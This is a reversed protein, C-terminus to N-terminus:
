DINYKTKILLDDLLEKAKLRYPIKSLMNKVIFDHIKETENHKIGKYSLNTHDFEIVVPNIGVQYRNIMKWFLVGLLYIDYKKALYLYAINNNNDIDNNEDKILKEIKELLQKKYIDELPSIKPSCIQNHIKKDKESLYNGCSYQFDTFIISIKQNDEIKILINEFDFNQHVVEKKHIYTLAYLIQTIIKIIVDLYKDPNLDKIKEFYEGLSEEQNFQHVMIINDQTIGYDLCQRVYKRSSQFQSLYNLFAIQSFSDNDLKNVPRIQIVFKKSNNNVDNALYNRNNDKTGLYKEIMYKKKLSNYIQEQINQYMNQNEM